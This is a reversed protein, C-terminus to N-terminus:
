KKVKKAQSKHHKLQAKVHKVTNEVGEFKKLMYGYNADPIGDAIGQSVKNLIATAENLYNVFEDQSMATNTKM